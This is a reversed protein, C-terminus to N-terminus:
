DFHPEVNNVLTLFFGLHDAINRADAHQQAYLVCIVARVASAGPDNPQLSDRNEELHQWCRALMDSLENLSVRGELYESALRLGRRAILPLKHRILLLCDLSFGNVQECAITPDCAIEIDNLLSGLKEAADM